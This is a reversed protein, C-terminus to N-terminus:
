VVMAVREPAESVHRQRRCAENVIGKNKPCFRTSEESQCSMTEIDFFDRRLGERLVCGHAVFGQFGRDQRLGCGRPRNARFAPAQTQRCEGWCPTPAGSSGRRCSCPRTGNQNLQALFDLKPKRRLMGMPCCLLLRNGIHPLGIIGHLMRGSDSCLMMTKCNTHWYAPVM